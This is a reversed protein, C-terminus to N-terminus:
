VSLSFRPIGLRAIRPDLLLRHNLRPHPARTERTEWSGPSEAAMLKRRGCDLGYLCRNLGFKGWTTLSAWVRFPAESVERVWSGRLWPHAPAKMCVCGARGAEEWPRLEQLDEALGLDGLVESSDGRAPLQPLGHAGGAARELPVRSRLVWRTLSRSGCPAEAHPPPSTDGPYVGKRLNLKQPKFVSTRPPLLPHTNCNSKVCFRPSFSSCPKGRLHCSGRPKGEWARM